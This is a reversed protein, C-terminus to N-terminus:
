PTQREADGLALAARELARAADAADLELAPPRAGGFAARRVADLERRSRAYDRGAQLLGLRVGLTDREPVGCAHADALADAAARPTRPGEVCLDAGCRACRATWLRARALGAVRRSM